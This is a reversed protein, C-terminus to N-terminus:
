PRLAQLPRSMPARTPRNTRVGRMAASPTPSAVQLGGLPLRHNTRTPPSSRTPPSAGRSRAPATPRDSDPLDSAGAARVRASPTSGSPSLRADQCPASGSASKDGLDRCMFYRGTQTTEENNEFRNAADGESHHEADDCLEALTNPPNTMHDNCNHEGHNGVLSPPLLLIEKRLLAGTNAHLDAFPFKTEDFLVDRSIYVRGTPVDLCKVGKHQPSYGLFVCQTSCFMLKRQNYPRLNPWCACGFVRLSAYDPKTHLLREVPTENNIVKSPLMNIIHVAALFAEDWFKLPMSAGALLALGVKVIHGHKREASGNQQHAHPCSM